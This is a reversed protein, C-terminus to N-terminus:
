FTKKEPYFDFYRYYPVDCCIDYTQHLSYGIVYERWNEGYQQECCKEYDYPVNVDLGEFKLKRSKLYDEKYRIFERNDNSTAIVGYLSDNGDSYKDSLAKADLKSYVKEKYIQIRRDQDLPMRDMPFIDVFMCNIGYKDYGVPLHTTESNIVRGRRNYDYDMFIYRSGKYRVQFLERFRDYDDRFMVIDIDDDWPIIGNDRVAGLLSGGDLFYTIGAEDCLDIIKKLMDVLVADIHRKYGSVMYGHFDYPVFFSDDFKMDVPLNVPIQHENRDWPMDVSLYKLDEM